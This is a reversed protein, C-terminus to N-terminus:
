LKIIASGPSFLKRAATNNNMTNSLIKKVLETKYVTACLEFPYNAHATKGTKWNLKYVKQGNVTEEAITEGSSKLFEASFRFTFGFIEAGKAEFTLDILNLDVSDFYVVDDIGFLIYKTKVNSIINLLDSHFDKEKIVHCWPYKSFVDDYEKEFLEIKYIVYIEVQEKPFYRFFSRLYAELQLPRNKTFVINSILKAM